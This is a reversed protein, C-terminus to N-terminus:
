RGKTKRERHLKEQDSTRNKGICGSPVFEDDMTGFCTTEYVGNRFLIHM